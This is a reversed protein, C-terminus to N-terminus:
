TNKRAFSLFSTIGSYEFTPPLKLIIFRTIEFIAKNTSDQGTPTYSKTKINSM